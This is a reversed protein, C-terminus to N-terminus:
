VYSEEISLADKKDLSISTYHLRQLSPDVKEALEFQPFELDRLRVSENSLSNNGLTYAGVSLHEHLSHYTITLQNILDATKAFHEQVDNQYRTLKEETAKLQEQLRKGHRGIPLVFWAFLVGVGIGMIFTIIFGLIGSNKLLM